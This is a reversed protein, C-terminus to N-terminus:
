LEGSQSHRSDESSMHWWSYVCVSSYTWDPWVILNLTQKIKYGVDTSLASLFGPFTQNERSASTSSPVLFDRYEINFDAAVIASSDIATPATAAEAPAAINGAPTPWGSGERSKKRRLSALASLLGNCSSCCSSSIHGLAQGQSFACQDLIWTSYCLDTHGALGRKQHIFPQYPVAEIASGFAM